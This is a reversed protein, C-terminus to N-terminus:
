INVKIEINTFGLISYEEPNLSYRTETITERTSGSNLTAYKRTLYVNKFLSTETRSRKPLISLLSPNDRMIKNRIVRLDISRKIGGVSFYNRISRDISSRILASEAATPRRDLGIEIDFSFAAQVGPSVIVKLGSTRLSDARLQVQKILSKSSFGDSGFVFVGCTGM